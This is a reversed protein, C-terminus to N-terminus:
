DYPEVAKIDQAQIQSLLKRFTDDVARQTLTSDEELELLASFGTKNQVFGQPFFHVRLRLGEEPRTNLYDGFVYNERVDWQWPGSANFSSCIEDLSQNCQFNFAWRNPNAM